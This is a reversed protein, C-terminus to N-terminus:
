SEITHANVEHHKNRVIELIQFGLTTKDDANVSLLFGCITKTKDKRNRAALVQFTSFLYIKKSNNRITEIKEQRGNRYFFNNSACARQTFQVYCVWVARSCSRSHISQSHTSLVFCNTETALPRRVSFSIKKNWKRCHCVPLVTCEWRETRSDSTSDDDDYDDDDVNEENIRAVPVLRVCCM